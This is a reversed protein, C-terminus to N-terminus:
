AVGHLDLAQLFILDPTEPPIMNRTLYKQFTKKLFLIMM